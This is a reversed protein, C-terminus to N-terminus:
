DIGLEVVQGPDVVHVVDGPSREDFPRGGADPAIDAERGLVAGLDRDGDDVLVLMSSKPRSSKSATTAEARAFSILSTHKATWGKM